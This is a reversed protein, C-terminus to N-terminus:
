AQAPRVHIDASPAPPPVLATHTRESACLHQAFESVKGQSVLGQYSDVKLFRGKLKESVRKKKPGKISPNM